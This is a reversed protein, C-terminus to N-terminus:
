IKIKWKRIIEREIIYNSNDIKIYGKVKVIDDKTYLNFIEESKSTRTTTNFFLFLLSDICLVTKGM